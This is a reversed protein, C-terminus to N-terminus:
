NFVPGNGGVQGEAARCLGEFVYDIWHREHWAAEVKRRLEPMVTGFLYSVHLTPKRVELTCQSMFQNVRDPNGAKAHLLPHKLIM